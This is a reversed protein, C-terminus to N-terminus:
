RARGRDDIPSPLDNRNILLQAPSLSDRRLVQLLEEYPGVVYARDGAGFRTGRRPPHELRGDEAARSIAVVRTRGSLEAMALNELGGGRAVELRAVLMPADGVYFTGLVDLGLAAGVFWPAALAATSRVLGIGFSKEVTLALQRDFLRLVVPMEKDQDQVALATELNVLDDSTLVAVARAEALNVSQLTQPLTADAIVVPVGIARLQALYRNSEDSDVVVVQSGAAHLLEVVRVGISGLGVVVVHGALGTIRRRGLSEEIRHTVLVNTLLAFMLTALCLGVIVLCIAFIRLWPAQERFSFDGYGVTGITEVTFYVADLVTMRRGDPERYGLRLVTTATVAVVVLAGLVLALRRDAAASMISAALTRVRHFLEFRRTPREAPGERWAINADRLQQPTGLLSVVDDPGVEHDRGPCVVVEQEVAQVAIPALDGFLERLSGAREPSVSAVVFREGGLDLPHAGTRLCAEVVSPASLGAVDLVSVSAASLARGVAPNRIQVVVRVDPRLDRALLATELTQLDDPLACIVALAGAVGAEALTEALHPAGLVHPVGWGRVIRTLRTDPEDDVVVVRVGAHHLQEVTRLGVGAVGCVIVHGAWDRSDRSV